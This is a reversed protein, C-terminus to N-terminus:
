REHKAVKWNPDEKGRYECYMVFAVSQLIAFVISLLIWVGLAIVKISTTPEQEIWDFFLITAMLGYAIAIMIIGASISGAGSITGWVKEKFTHEKHSKCGCKLLKEM